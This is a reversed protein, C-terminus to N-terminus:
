YGVVMSLNIRRTINITDGVSGEWNLMVGGTLVQNKVRYQNRVMLGINYHSYYHVENGKFGNAWMDTLLIGNNFGWGIVPTYEYPLTKIFFPKGILIENVGTVWVRNKMPDRRSEHFTAKIRVWSIIYPLRIPVMIGIPLGIISITDRYYGPRPTPYINMGIELSVGQERLIFNEPVLMVTSKSRSKYLYIASEARRVGYILAGSGTHKILPPPGSTPAAFYQDETGIFNLTALAGDLVALGRMDVDGETIVVTAGNFLLKSSGSTLIMSVTDLGKGNWDWTGGELVLAQAKLPNSAIKVRSTNTKKINPFLVGTKPTFTQTDISSCFVMTDDVGIHMKTLTKFDVVKGTFNLNVRNDFSMEANGTVLLNGVTDESAAWHWNGSNLILTGVRLPTGSVQLTGAGTKTLQPYLWGPKPKFIQTTGEIGSFFINGKQIWITGHSFDADGRLSLSYTRLNITRKFGPLCQISRIEVDDSLKCDALANGDFFATDNITSPYSQDNPIITGSPPRWNSPNDWNAGNGGIWTYVKASCVTPLLLLFFM